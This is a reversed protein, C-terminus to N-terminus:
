DCTASIRRVSRVQMQRDTLMGTVSVRRGIHNALRARNGPDAVEITATGKKLFGTKWSRAKPVDIGDTDTLKFTDDSRQLCGAITAPVAKLGSTKVPEPMPMVAVASETSSAAANMSKKSATQVTVAPAAVESAVAESDTAPQHAGIAIAAITICVAAAVVGAGTMQSRSWMPHKAGTSRAAAASPKAAAPAKARVSKNLSM